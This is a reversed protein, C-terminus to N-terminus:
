EFHNKTIGLMETIANFMLVFPVILIGAVFGAFLWRSLHYALFLLPLLLLQNLAFVLIGTGSASSGTRCIREFAWAYSGFKIISFITGVVLGTLVIWRNKLLIIDLISLLMLFIVSNKATFQEIKSKLM